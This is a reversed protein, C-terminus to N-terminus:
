AAKDTAPWAAAPDLVPKGSQELQEQAAALNEAKQEAKTPKKAPAAQDGAFLDQVTQPEPPILDIEVETQIKHDLKGNADEEPHAIVRFAIIVTGGQQLTFKFKDVKCDELVIDSKGGIGHAVRVQYGTLEQDWDLVPDLRPFKLATLAAPDAQDVLDPADAKEAAKYFAELLQTDFFKLAENNTTLLFMLDTAPRTKDGHKEARNNVNSLLVTTEKLEFFM